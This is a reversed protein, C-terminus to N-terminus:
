HATNNGRWDRVRTYSSVPFQVASSVAMPSADMTGGPGDLGVAVKITSGTQPQAFNDQGFSVITLVSGMVGLAEVLAM